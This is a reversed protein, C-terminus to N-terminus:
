QREGVDCELEEWYVASEQVEGGNLDCYLKGVCKCYGEM